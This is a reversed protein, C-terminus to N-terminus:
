PAPPPPAIERCALTRNFVRASWHLAGSGDLISWEDWWTCKFTAGIDPAETVTGRMYSHCRVRHVSARKCLDVGSTTCDLGQVPTNCLARADAKSANHARSVKLVHASASGAVVLSAAVALVVVLRKM